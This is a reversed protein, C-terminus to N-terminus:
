LSPLVAYSCCLAVLFTISERTGVIFFCNSVANSVILVVSGISSRASRTVDQGYIMAMAM